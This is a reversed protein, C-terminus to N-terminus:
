QQIPEFELRLRMGLGAALKKLMALSPNRSGNEIKSINSQSIGTVEALEKQTMNKKTRADILAQIIDFEPQLEDYAAKLEPDELAKNKFEQYDIM